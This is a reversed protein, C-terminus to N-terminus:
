GFELALSKLLELISLCHGSEVRGDARHIHYPFGALNPFHEVNDWRNRLQQQSADMWQYHYRQALCEGDTEVFYEALELFDDNTLWARVRIYGRDPEVWQEIVDFSAVLGNAVLEALIADIYEAPTM